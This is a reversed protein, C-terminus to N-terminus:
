QKMTSNFLLKLIKSLDLLSWTLKQLVKQDTGSFWRSKIMWKRCPSMRTTLISIRILTVEWNLWNRMPLGCLLILNLVNRTTLILKRKRSSSALNVWSTSVLLEMQFRVQGRMSLLGKNEQLRPYKESSLRRQRLFNTLSWVSKRLSTNIRLYNLIQWFKM